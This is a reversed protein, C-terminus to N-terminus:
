TRARPKQALRMWLFSPRGGILRRALYFTFITAFPVIESESLQNKSRPNPVGGGSITVGLPVIADSNTAM